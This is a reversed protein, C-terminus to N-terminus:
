ISRTTYCASSPRDVIRAAQASTETTLLSVRLHYLVLAPTVPQNISFRNRPSDTSANKPPTRCATQVVRSFRHFVGCAPIRAVKESSNPNKEKSGREDGLIYSGPQRTLRDPRDTEARTSFSLVLPHREDQDSIIRPAVSGEILCTDSSASM